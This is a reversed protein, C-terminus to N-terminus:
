ATERAVIEDTGGKAARMRKGKEKGKRASKSRRRM